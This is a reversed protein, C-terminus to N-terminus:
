FCTYIILRLVNSCLTCIYTNSLELLYINQHYVIRIFTTKRFQTYFAMKRNVINNAPTSVLTTLICMSINTILAVKPTVDLMQTTSSTKLFLTNALINIFLAYTINMLRSSSMINVIPLAGIVSRDLGTLTVNVSVHCVTVYVIVCNIVNGSVGHNGILEVCFVLIFTMYFGMESLTSTDGYVYSDNQQSVQNFSQNTQDSIGCSNMELIKSCIRM